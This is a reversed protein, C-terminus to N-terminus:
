NYELAADALSGIADAISVRSFGQKALFGLQQRARASINRTEISISRVEADALKRYRQACAQGYIQLVAVALLLLVVTV